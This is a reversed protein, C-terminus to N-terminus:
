SAVETAGRSPRVILAPISHELCYKYVQEAWFRNSVTGKPSNILFENAREGHELVHANTLLALLLTVQPNTFIRADIRIQIQLLPDNQM